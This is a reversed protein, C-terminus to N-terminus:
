RRASAAAAISQHVCSGSCFLRTIWLNECGTLQSNSTSGPTSLMSPIINNDALITETARRGGFSRFCQQSLQLGFVASTLSQLSTPQVLTPQMLTSLLTSQVLISQLFTSLELTSRLWDRASLPSIM